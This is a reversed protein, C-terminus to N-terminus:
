FLSHFTRVYLDLSSGHMEEQNAHQQAPRMDLSPPHRGAAHTRTTRCLRLSSLRPRRTCLPAVLRGDFRFV